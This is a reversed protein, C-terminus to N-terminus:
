TNPPEGSRGIPTRRAPHFQVPHDNGDGGSREGAAAAVAFREFTRLARRGEAAAVGAGARDAAGVARVLRDRGGNAAFTAARELDSVAAVAAEITRRHGPALDSAGALGQLTRRVGADTM